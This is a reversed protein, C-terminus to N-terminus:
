ASGAKELKINGSSIAMMQRMTHEMNDPAGDLFIVNGKGNEAFHKIADTWMTFLIVSADLGVTKMEEAAKTM